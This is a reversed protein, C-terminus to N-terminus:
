RGTWIKVQHYPALTVPGVLGNEQIVDRGKVSTDLAFLRNNLTTAVRVVLTNTGAKLFRSVNAEASVQDIAVQRGNVWVTFTDSVQGLDLVGGETRSSWGRPLEFTTTYTGVGSANALEPIDPWAKLSDVRVSVPVKATEAGAAGTTGYPQAPQWDEADIQWSSGTLDKVAVVDRVTTRVTRGNSLTTSYRGPQNAQVYLERGLRGVGTATTNVAHTTLNEIGFRGPSQTLAIVTSADRDLSLPVTVKTGTRSYGAIPTIEGSTTDLAVPIGRGTLTVSTKLASGTAMCPNNATTTRCAAPEEYVNSPNQGFVANNGPYAEVGQNYLWYYDTGTKVDTRRVSLLDSPAAPEAAPTIGLSRLKAPVEAESSVSSYTPQQRIQTLIADLEADQSAPMSATGNPQGVFIVPLGAQAYALFKRAAAISLSGRASNSSPQLYRDFILAQYAPGNRALRGGSVTANPLDFLSEDLYDWTYGERQLATDQWHRSSADAAPPAFASPSSYNRQYVAVDMKAAGQTLVMHNRAFYDNVKTADQWYPQSRNWANAFSVKNANFGLGPWTSTSTALYPRIHYVPRNVGGAYEHNMRIIADQYTQVYSQSLVACCETSYWTNGTMHLASAMPRYTDAQDGGTLSEYESRDLVASTQLQDGISTYPGDEQQLRLKMNYTHAWEQFPILRNETYLDSRVKNFDSRIRNGSGDSFSYFVATPSPTRGFGAGSMSPDVLAALDPTIDYGARGQFEAKM